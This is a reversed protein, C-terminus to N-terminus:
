PCRGEIVTAKWVFMQNSDIVTDLFHDFNHIVKAVVAEPSRFVM